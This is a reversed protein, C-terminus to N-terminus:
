VALCQKLKLCRGGLQAMLPFHALFILKKASLCSDLSPFLGVAKLHPNTPM